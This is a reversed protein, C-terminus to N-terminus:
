TWKDILCEVHTQEWLQKDHTWGNGVNEDFQLECKYLQPRLTVRLQKMATARKDGHMSWEDTLVLACGLHLSRRSAQGTFRKKCFVASEIQMLGSCHKNRNM